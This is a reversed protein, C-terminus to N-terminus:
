PTEEDLAQEIARAYTYKKLEARQAAVMERRLEPITLLEVCLQPLEAVHGTAIAISPPWDSQDPSTESVVAVGQRVTHAIRLTEFRDSPGNYHMNLVICSSQTLIDLDHGYAGFVQVVRIGARDFLRLGVSRYASPCAPFLVDLRTGPRTYEHAAPDWCGPVYCWNDRVSTPQKFVSWVTAGALTNLYKESMWHAHQETNVVISDCPVPIGLHAGFVIPRGESPRYEATMSAHHGLEQLGHLIGFAHNELAQVHPMLQVWRGYIVQYKM